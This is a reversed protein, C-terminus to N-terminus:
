ISLYYSEIMNDIRSQFEPTITDVIIHFSFSKSYTADTVPDYFYYQAIYQKPIFELGIDDELYKVTVTEGSAFTLDYEYDGVVVYDDYFSTFDGPVCSGDVTVSVPTGEEQFSLYILESTFRTNGCSHNIIHQYSVKAESGLINFTMDTFGSSYTYVNNNSVFTNTAPISKEYSTFIDSIFSKYSVLEDQTSYIVSGRVENFYTLDASSDYVKNFAIFGYINTDTSIGNYEYVIFTNGDATVLNYENFKVFGDYSLPAVDGDLCYSQFLLEGEFNFFDTTIVENDFNDYICEANSFIDNVESLISLDLSNYEFILDSYPSNYQTLNTTTTGGGTGTSGSDTSGTSGSGTSGSDTSGTDTTSGTDSTTGTDTSDASNTDNGLPLAYFAIGEYSFTDNLSNDVYSKEDLDATYFHTAGTIKNMWRYVPITGSQATEYACFALEEKEFINSYTSEVVDIENQKITYFHTDGENINRYRYVPSGELCSDNDKYIAKFTPTEQTFVGPWQGTPLSQNYVYEATDLDITYFHTNRTRLNYFRYVAGDEFTQFTAGDITINFFVSLIAFSFIFSFLSVVKFSKTM